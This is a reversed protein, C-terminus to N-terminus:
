GVTLVKTGLRYISRHLEGPAGRKCMVSTDTGSTPKAPATHVLPSPLM